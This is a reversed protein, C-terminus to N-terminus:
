KNEGFFYNHYTCLGNPLMQSDASTNPTSDCYKCKTEKTARRLANVTATGYDKKNLPELVTAGDKNVLLMPEGINFSKYSGQAKWSEKRTM